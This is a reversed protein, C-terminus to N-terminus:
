TKSHTVVKPFGQSTHIKVPTDVGLFSFCSVTRSKSWLCVVGISRGSKDSELLCRAPVYFHYTSLYGKRQPFVTSFIAQGSFKYISFGVTSWAPYTWFVLWYHFESLWECINNEAHGILFYCLKTLDQKSISAVFIRRFTHYPPLCVLIILVLSRCLLTFLEHCYVM